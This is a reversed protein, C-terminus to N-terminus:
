SGYKRHLLEFFNFQREILWAVDRRFESWLDDPVDLDVRTKPHMLLDRRSMVRKARTWELSGFNPVPKLAFLKYAARLTFKYRDCANFDRESRLVRGEKSTLAQEYCSFDFSCIDRICHIYGDVLAASSRIFNRRWPQTDNEVDLAASLDESLIDSLGLYNDVAAGLRQEPACLTTM